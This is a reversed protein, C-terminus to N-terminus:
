RGPGASKQRRVRRAGRRDGPDGRRHVRNAQQQEDTGGQVRAIIKPYSRTPQPADEAPVVAPDPLRSQDQRDHQAGLLTAGITISAAALTAAAVVDSLWHVGLYLRTAAIVLAGTVVGATLWARTARSRGTGICIAVIGLLAATATVHGSPFSPDTETLLQLEQPPRPRDILAKLTTSAGAATSVTGIVIIGPVASRARWSLLAACTVGAAAIAPPSGLDTIVSAAGTWGASRHAVFWLTTATDLRSVWGRTHLGLALGLLATLLGAVRLAPAVYRHRSFVQGVLLFAAVILVTETTPAAAPGTIVDVVDEGIAARLDPM